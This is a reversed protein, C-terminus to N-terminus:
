LSIQRNIPLMTGKFSTFEYNKSDLIFDTSVLRLMNTVNYKAQIESRIKNHLEVYKRDPTELIFKNYAMNSLVAIWSFLM